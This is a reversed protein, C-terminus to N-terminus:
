AEQLQGSDEEYETLIFLFAFLLRDGDVLVCRSSNQEIVLVHYYYVLVYSLQM